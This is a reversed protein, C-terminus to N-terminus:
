RAGFEYLEPYLEPLVYPSCKFATLTRDVVDLSVTANEGSYVKRLTSEDSRCNLAFERFTEFAGLQRSMWERFPAPDLKPVIELDIAAFEGDRRARRRLLQRRDIARRYVAYCPRCRTVLRLPDRRRPHFFEETEPFDKACDRCTRM